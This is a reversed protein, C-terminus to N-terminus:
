ALGSLVVHESIKKLKFDTIKTSRKWPNFGTGSVAKMSTKGGLIKPAIFFCVERVQKQEFFSALISGGGEVLLQVIGSSGLIKMVADLSVVSRYLPVSFVTAGANELAAVKAQSADKGVFIWTRSSKSENLSRMIQSDLPTKAKSDLIVRIPQRSIQTLRVTLSPDDRHITNVGVLIADVRSRLKQAEARAAKSTIWKSEGSATAIKGDLTMGCKAIVWPSQKVIWHNWARNLDQSEKELVGSEVKIGHRKLEVLGKGRHKPNPDTAGVVVRKIGKARILKTCPPTKGYSCCPELTVYLTSGGARMGKREAMQIAEVEAHPLGAAHHWGEGIKKGKKILVAGVCPNPSTKGMGRKALVIARRMWKEDQTV